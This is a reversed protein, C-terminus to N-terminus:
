LDNLYKLLQKEVKKVRYVTMHMIEAIYDYSNAEELAHLYLLFMANNGVARTAIEFGLGRMGMEISFTGMAEEMEKDLSGPKEEDDTSYMPHSKRTAYRKIIHDMKSMAIGSMAKDLPLDEPWRREGYYIACYCDWSIIDVANGQMEEKSFPGNQFGFGWRKLTGTIFKGVYEFAGKKEDEKIKLLREKQRQKEEDTLPKMEQRGASAKAKAPRREDPKLRVSRM